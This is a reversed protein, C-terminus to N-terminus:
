SSEQPDHSLLPCALRFGVHFMRQTPGLAKRGDLRVFRATTSWGSGLVCRRTDPEPPLSPDCYPTSLWNEVQGAVHRM